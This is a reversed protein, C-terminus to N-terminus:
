EHTAEPDAAGFRRACVSSLVVFTSGPRLQAFREAEAVASNETEHRYRPPPDGTPSWVIWFAAHKTVDNM